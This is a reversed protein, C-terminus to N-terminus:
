IVSVCLFGHSLSKCEGQKSVGGGGGGQYAGDQFLPSKGMSPHLLSYTKALYSFAKEEAFRGPVAPAACGSGCNNAQLSAPMNATYRWLNSSSNLTGGWSCFQWTAVHATVRNDFPQPTM